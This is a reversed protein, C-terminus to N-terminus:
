PQAECPLERRTLTQASQRAASDPRDNGQARRAHSRLPPQKNGIKSVLKKGRLKKLDYAAQRPQYPKASPGYLTRVKAALDSATFGKPATSLAVVAHM